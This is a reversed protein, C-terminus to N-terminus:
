KKCSKLLEELEDKGLTYVEPCFQCTLEAKGDNEIIDTLEKAGLSILARKIKDMSCDCRYEYESEDLFQYEFGELLAGIMDEASMGDEMMQTVSSIKSVNKEVRDIDEEMAAPMLQVMFGGSRKVTYDRDVLVGLGVATPTQESTAFYYTFDEAIEGSTLPVQGTYPEKMGLDKTVSLMGNGVAGAVDLKGNPKKAIDVLPNQVYGKVMGNGDAVSLISGLPGNGKILLTVSNDPSKLQSGMIAAMTLTRGLAATAVPSTHHISQAKKAIDTTDAFTVRVAGWEDIARIIKGM